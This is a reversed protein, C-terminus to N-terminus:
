KFKGRKNFRKKLGLDYVPEIKKKELRSYVNAQKSGQILSIIADHANKIQESHGIIAVSNDKLEFFCKTLASLTKLTRGEKGIIRSRISKLDKRKTQDKINIVEFSYDLDKLRMSASFPFGFELAELVKEAVFEDKPKGEITIEKGRNTIKINLEKELKKRNKIIRPAKEYILTKM